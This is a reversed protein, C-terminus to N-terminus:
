PTAGFVDGLLRVDSDLFESEREPHWLVGVVRDREGIMAEITGDSAVAWAHFGPPLGSRTVGFRHFSNRQSLEPKPADAGFPLPPIWDVAHRRAVHGEIRTLQGGYLSVLHQMGRCVGLIPLRHEKAYGVIATELHDREPAPEAAGPLMALDNGGTLLFGDLTLDHM